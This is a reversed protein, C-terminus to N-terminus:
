CLREPNMVPLERMEDDLLLRERYKLSNPINKNICSKHNLCDLYQALHVLVITEENSEHNTFVVYGNLWDKM